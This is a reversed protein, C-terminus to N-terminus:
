LDLAGVAAGPNPGLLAGLRPSLERSAGLLPGVLRTLATSSLRGSPGAVTMSGLVFPQTAPHDAEALLPVSIGNIGPHNEGCSIEYGRQRIEALREPTIGELELGALEATPLHALIVRGSAGVALPSREGLVGAPDVMPGSPAPVGLVLVRADGARLHVVAAEGSVIALRAVVPYMLRLLAPRPGILTALAISRSALRYGDRGLHHLYGERELSRLIRFTYSDSLGIREAIERLAAPQRMGALTELIQLGRLATPVLSM